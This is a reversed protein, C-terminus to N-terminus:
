PKRNWVLEPYNLLQWEAECFGCRELMRRSRDNRAEAKLTQIEDLSQIHRILAPGLGHGRVAEAVVIYDIRSRDKNLVALALISGREAIMWVRSSSCCERMWILREPQKNESCFEENLEIERKASCLLDSLAQARDQTALEIRGARGLKKV